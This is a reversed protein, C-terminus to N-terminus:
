FNQKNNAKKIDRKYAKTLNLYLLIMALPMLLVISAGIYFLTTEAIPNM